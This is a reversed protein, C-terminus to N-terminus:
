QSLTDYINAGGDDYIRSRDKLIEQPSIYNQDLVVNAGVMNEVLIQNKNINLTGLFVYSSNCKSCLEISDLQPPIEKVSPLMSNLVSSRYKDAYVTGNSKYNHNALWNGGAIERDNFKPFDTNPNLAISTSQGPDVVADVLGTDFFMFIILFLSVIQLYHEHKLNIKSLLKLKYTIKIIGLICFPSLVILAIHYLRSTNMQSSFFPLLLGVVLILLTAYSLAKYEPNFKMGDKRLFLTVIGAFIFLQSILYLYKHINKLPTAQEQVVLSLGQTTNPDMFTYLNSIISQGIGMLSDIISSNSTYFYWILISLTFLAIFSLNVVLRERKVPEYKRIKEAIVSELPEKPLDVGYTGSNYPQVSGISSLGFIKSLHISPLKFVDKDILYLIVVSSILIIILLYSLGYHSVIISLGFIVALASKNTKNLKNNVLLMLLLVLFLEAIEQRMLSLMETYFTFLIMFFFASYFAIKPCTQKSYVYYLGLPVLAFIVPYVIKMVWVLNLRIFSSLIPALIVVSLMSNYNSFLNANWLSNSLIQNSLFYEVNIDWGWIYNTILSMHLLLSVSFSFVILPYLKASIRFTNIIFAFIGILIIVIISLINSQYTNMAYVGLISLIPLLVLFLHVPSPLKTIHIKKVPIEPTLSNSPQNRYREVLFCILCFVIIFINITIIISLSSLPKNFGIIPYITNILFGMFMLIFISTGVTYLLIQGNSEIDVNLLRLLLTGPIFLVIFSGIIETIIPIHLGVSEVIILMFYIIQATVILFVLDKIKWDKMFFPNNLQM